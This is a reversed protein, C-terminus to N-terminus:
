ETATGSGTSSDEPKQDSVTDALPVGAADAGKGRTPLLDMVGSLIAEKDDSTLDEMEILKRGLPDVEGDISVLAIRIMEESVRKVAGMEIVKDVGPLVGTARFADRTDIRRVVAKSDGALDIEKRRTELFKELAM